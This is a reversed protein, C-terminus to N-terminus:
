KKVSKKTSASSKSEKVPAAKHASKAEQKKETKKIM